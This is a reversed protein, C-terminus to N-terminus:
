LPAPEYGQARARVQFADFLYLDGSSYYSRAVAPPPLSQLRERNVQAFCLYTDVAHAELLAMFEYAVAPSFIFTVTVAWYYAISCHTSLFRDRWERSGGLAEMILLHHLENAEEAYHVNRLEPARWWGLSEFLHLCSVYSFYPCRAIVELFYFRQIPRGDFFRDLFLCGVEYLARSVPHADVAGGARVRRAEFEQVAENSLQVNLCDPLRAPDRDRLGVAELADGVLEAGQRRFNTLALGVFGAPRDGDRYPQEDPRLYVEREYDVEAPPTGLATDEERTAMVISPAYPRCAATPVVRVNRCEANSISSGPPRVAAAALGLFSVSISPSMPM